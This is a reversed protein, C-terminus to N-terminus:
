VTDRAVASRLFSLCFRFVSFFCLVLCVDIASVIQHTAGVTRGKWALCPEVCMNVASVHEPLPKMMDSFRTSVPKPSEHKLTEVSTPM